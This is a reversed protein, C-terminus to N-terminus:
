SLGTKYKKHFLSANLNANTNTEKNLFTVKACKKHFINSMKDFNGRGSKYNKFRPIVGLFMKDFNKRHMKLVQFQIM